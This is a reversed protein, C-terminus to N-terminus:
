LLTNAHGDCRGHFDGAGFVDRGGRWLLSFRKGRFQAFIEPFDSIIVSGVMLTLSKTSDKLLITENELSEVKGKLLTAMSQQSSQFSDIRGKLTGVDSQLIAIIGNQLSDTRDKLLTVDNQLALALRATSDDLKKLDTQVQALAPM